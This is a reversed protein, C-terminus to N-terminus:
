GGGVTLAVHYWSAAANDYINLNHTSPNYLIFAAGSGNDVPVGTPVGAVTPIGFHGSTATTALATMAGGTGGASINATAGVTQLLVPQTSSASRVSLSTVATNASSNAFTAQTGSSNALIISGTGNAAFLCTANTSGLCSIHGFADGSSGGLQIYGTGPTGTGIPAGMVQMVGGYALVAGFGSAGVTSASSGNLQANTTSSASPNTASTGPTIVLFNTSAAGADAIEFATGAGTAFFFNGANQTVFNGNVNGTPPATGNTAYCTSGTGTLGGQCSWFDTAGPTYGTQFQISGDYTEFQILPSKLQVNGNVNAFGPTPPNTGFWGQARAAGPIFLLLLLLRAIM